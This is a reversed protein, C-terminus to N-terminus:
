ADNEGKYKHTLYEEFYKRYVTPLAIKQQLKDIEVWTYEANKEYVYVVYAHMHWEIHSFIHKRNSLEMVQIANLKQEIETKTYITDYSVFKWMDYLVGKQMNKEVAILNDYIMLVITKNELKRGAAKKKVPLQEVTGNKYALCYKQLPCIDCKAVGNPICITAGLEMIAQNFDGADNPLIQNLDTELRKRTAQKTIDEFNNQVRAMVRFVNGDIASVKQHFAISAIAGATYPGIGKLGLIDEYKSPFDGNFEQMIQNAAIKLNRARSYYGLGEWLKMLKEDDVEALDKITPLNKMFRYYFPKVAEVRTQQLMIESIWIRYPNKDKRWELDRKNLKYWNLLPKVIENM